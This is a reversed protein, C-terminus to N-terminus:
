SGGAVPAALRAAEAAGILGASPGLTALEIRLPRGPMFGAVVERLLDMYPGLDAAIGGGLLVVGPDIVGCTMAIALAWGEVAESVIERAVEDGATALQLARPM